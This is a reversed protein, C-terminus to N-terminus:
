SKSHFTKDITENSAADEMIMAATEHKLRSVHINLEYLEKSTTDIQTMTRASGPVYRCSACSREVEWLDVDHISQPLSFM